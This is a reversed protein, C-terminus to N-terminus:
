APCAHALERCARRSELRRLAFFYHPATAGIGKGSTRRSTAGSSHGGVPLEPFGSARLSPGTRAGAAGFFRGERKRVVATGM